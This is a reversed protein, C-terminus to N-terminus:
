LYEYKMRKCDVPTFTQPEPFDSIQSQNTLILMSYIPSKKISHIIDVTYNNKFPQNAVLNTTDFTRPIKIIVMETGNKFLEDVIQDVYIKNKNEDTYSLEKLIKQYDHGGWPPDIFVIDQKLQKYLDTYSGLHRHLNMTTHYIADINHKTIEIHLHSIDVIHVSQFQDYSCMIDGGCCSGAITLVKDHLDPYYSQIHKFIYEQHKYPTTSYLGEDTMRIYPIIDKPLGDLLALKDCYQLKIEKPHCNKPKPLM